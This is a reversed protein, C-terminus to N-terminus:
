TRLILRIDHRISNDIFNESRYTYIYSGDEQNEQMMDLFYPDHQQVYEIEKIRYPSKISFIHIARYGNISNGEEDVETTIYGAVKNMKLDLIYESNEKALRSTGYSNSAPYTIYLYDEGNLRYKTEFEITRHVKFNLVKELVGAPYALVSNEKYTLRFEFFGEGNESYLIVEPLNFIYVMKGDEVTYEYLVDTYDSIVGDDNTIKIINTKFTCGTPYGANNQTYKVILRQTKLEQGNYLNNIDFGTIEIEMEPDRAGVMSAITETVKKKTMITLDDDPDKISKDIAVWRNTEPDDIGESYYLGPNESCLSKYLGKSMIGDNEKSALNIGLDVKEWGSELYVYTQYTAKGSEDVYDKVYYLDGITCNAPDIAMLDDISELQGKYNVITSGASGGGGNAGLGIPELKYPYIADATNDYQIVYVRTKKRIKDDVSIVQGAYCLGSRSYNLAEEYDNYITTDDLPFSGARTYGRLSIIPKPRNM